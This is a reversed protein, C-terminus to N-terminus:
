SWTQISGGISSREYREVAGAAGAISRQRIAQDGAAPVAFWPGTTLYSVNQKVGRATGPQRSTSM